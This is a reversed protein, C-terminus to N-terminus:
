SLLRILLVVLALVFVVGYIQSVRDAFWKPLFIDTIQGHPSGLREVYVTLPCKWDSFVLIIGEAIFLVVAIWTLYTIEDSVVEYLLIGLLVSLIVFLITHVSKIFTISRLM